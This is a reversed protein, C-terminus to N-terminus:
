VYSELFVSRVVRLSRCLFAFSASRLPANANKEIVVLLSPPTRLALGRLKYKYQIRPIVSVMVAGVRFRARTRTM